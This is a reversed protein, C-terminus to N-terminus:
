GRPPYPDNGYSNRSEIQGNKNHVVLEGKLNKAIQRGMEVAATKTDYSGYVTQTGAKKVVWVDNSYVVHIQVLGQTSM